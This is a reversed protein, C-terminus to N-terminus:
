QDKIEYKSEIVSADSVTFVWDTIPTRDTIPTTLYDGVRARLPAHKGNPVLIHVDIRSPHRSIHEVRAVEGGCLAAVEEMNDTTVVVGFLEPLKKPTLQKYIM